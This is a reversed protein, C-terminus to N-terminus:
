HATGAIAIAGIPDRRYAFPHNFVELANDPPVPIEFTEGAALDAVIVKLHEGLTEEGWLLRVASGDGGRHGLERM